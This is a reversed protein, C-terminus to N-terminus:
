SGNKVERPGQKNYNIKIGQPMPGRKPPITLTLRKIKKM